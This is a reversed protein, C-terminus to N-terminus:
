ERPGAIGTLTAKSITHKNIFIRCVAGSSGEPIELDEVDLAHITFTYKLQKGIAPCPGIYGPKELDTNAEIVEKPLSDSDLSRLNGPINYAVWHWFGSGTPADKDFFTIAFSKTNAPPNTWELAPRENKGVCGFQDAYHQPEVKEGEKFTKSSIKFKESM